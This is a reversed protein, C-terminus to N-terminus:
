RLINVFGLPYFRQEFAWAPAIVLPVKTFAPAIAPAIGREDGPEKTTYNSYPATRHWHALACHRISHKLASRLTNLPSKHTSPNMRQTIDTEM